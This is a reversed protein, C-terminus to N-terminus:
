VEMVEKGTNVLNNQEELTMPRWACHEPISLDPRPTDCRQLGFSVKLACGCPFRFFKEEKLSRDEEKEDDEEDKNESNNNRRERKERM